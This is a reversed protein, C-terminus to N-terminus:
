TPKRWSPSRTSGTPPSPNPIAELEVFEDGHADRLRELLDRSDKRVYEEFERDSARSPGADYPFVNVLTLTSGTIGALTSALAIADNSGQSEDVAVIIKSM